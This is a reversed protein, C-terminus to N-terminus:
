PKAPCIPMRHAKEVKGAAEDIITVGTGDLTALKGSPLKAIPSVSWQAANGLVSGCLECDDPQKVEVFHVKKATKADFVLVDGGGFGVIAWSDGGVHVPEAGYTNFEAPEIDGIKKGAASYLIANGGPGACNSTAVYVSEGAFYAGEICTGEEAIKVAKQKKGTAGDLLVFGGLDGGTAVVRKGDASVSIQYPSGDAKLKPLDLKKCATGKCAEAGKADQKIALPAAPAAAATPPAAAERYAGTALDVATCKPAGKEDGERTICFTLTKDDAAFASLVNDDTSTVCYGPKAAPKAEGGASGAMAASSGSAASEGSGPAAGSTSGGSAPGEAKKSGCGAALAISVFAIRTRM